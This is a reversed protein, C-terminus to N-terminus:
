FRGRMLSGAQADCKMDKDLEWRLVLLFFSRAYTLVIWDLVLMIPDSKSNSFFLIVNAFIIRDNSHIEFM